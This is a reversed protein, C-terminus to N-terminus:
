HEEPSGSSKSALWEETTAALFLIPRVVIPHNSMAERSGSHIGPFQTQQEAQKAIGGVGDNSHHGASQLSRWCFSAIEVCPAGFFVLILGRLPLIKNLAGVALM